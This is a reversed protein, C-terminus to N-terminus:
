PGLRATPDAHKFHLTLRKLSRGLATVHVRSKLYLPCTWWRRERSSCQLFLQVTIRLNLDRQKSRERKNKNNKKKLPSICWRKEFYRKFFVLLVSVIFCLLSWDHSVVYMMRFCCDSRWTIFVLILFDSCLFPGLEWSPLVQTCNCSVNLLSFEKEGIHLCFSLVLDTGPLKSRVRFSCLVCLCRTSKM